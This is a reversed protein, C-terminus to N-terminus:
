EMIRIAVNGRKRGTDVYRHAEVIDDISYTRDIFSNIHGAEILKRLENLSETNISPGGAIFRKNSRRRERALKLAIDPSGVAHLYCGREVLSCSAKKIDLIGVTDFIVDYQIGNEMFDESKYDITIDAGLQTVLEKNAESCVATVKAGIYKAFQIAYTGVSGSAGNILIHQEEKLKSARLFYIATSAGIPLVASEIFSSNSPKLAIPGSEPLCTFEAYAGFRTGTSAYVEDGIKFRTVKKGVAVVEGACEMGPVAKRPKNIGLFLRGFLKFSPPVDFARMRRDGATVSTAHTRILVEKKSPVPKDVSRLKLVEPAGYATCIVAKMKM